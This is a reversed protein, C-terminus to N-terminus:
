DAVQGQGQMEFVKQGMWERIADSTQNLAEADPLFDFVTLNSNKVVRVDASVPFVTVGLREFVAVSRKM